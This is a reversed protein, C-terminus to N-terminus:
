KKKLWINAGGVFKDFLGTEAFKENWMDCFFIIEYDHNNMLFARLLYSENWARGTKIWEVPYEFDKFVDHFHIYVGSKLNPLIDFLIKNVDAGRKAMHSSDIFLIDNEEMDEFINMDANQLFCEQLSINDTEKLLGKLRSPFPEVFELKIKSNFCYENTDLMVASSFGSGIEVIKNPRIKKILGYLVLADVVGYKTNDEYFRCRYEKEKSKLNRYEDVLYTFWKQQENMNMDIDRIQAHSALTGVEPYPSNFNDISDISEYGYEECNLYTMRIIYDATKLPLVRCYKSIETYIDEGAAVSVIVYTLDDLNKLYNKSMIETGYIFHGHKAIDSDVVAICNIGMSKLVRVIINGRTGAGYVVFKSVKNFLVNIETYKM